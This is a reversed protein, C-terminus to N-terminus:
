PYGRSMIMQRGFVNIFCLYTTVNTVPIRCHWPAYWHFGEEHVAFIREIRHLWSWPQQFIPQVLVGSSLSLIHVIYRPTSLMTHRTWAFVNPSFSSIYRRRGNALVKTPWLQSFWGTPAPWAWRDNRGSIKIAMVIHSSAWKTSNLIKCQCVSGLMLFTSKAEGIM